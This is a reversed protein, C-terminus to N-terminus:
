STKSQFHPYFNVNLFFFLRYHLTIETGIMLMWYDLVSKTTM